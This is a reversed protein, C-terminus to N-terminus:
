EDIPQFGGFYYRIGVSFDFANTKTISTREVNDLLIDSESRAFNYSVIAELALGDSAMITFGPGIGVTLINNNVTQAGTTTEFEDRSSGFGLTTNLFFAKDETYLPFYIRAFPGFLLDTNITETKPSSPDTANEPVSRRTAIYEMGVGFAFNNAFFYGISPSLNIQTSRGGNGEFDASGGDVDVQSSSTSFGIGTGIIFNGKELPTVIIPSLFGPRTEEEDARETVVDPDDSYFEQTMAVTALVSLALVLLWRFQIIKM